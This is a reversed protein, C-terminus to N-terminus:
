RLKINFLHKFITYLSSKMKELPTNNTTNTPITHQRGGNKCDAQNNASGSSSMGTTYNGGTSFESGQIDETGEKAQNSAAGSSSFGGSSM